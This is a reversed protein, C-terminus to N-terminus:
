LKSENLAENLFALFAQTDLYYNPYARKIEKIQSVYVQVVQFRPDGFHKKETELYHEAVHELHSKLFGTVSIKREKMDLVLVYAQWGPNRKLSSLSQVSHSLGELKGVVDLKMCLKRLEKLLADRDSPCDPVPTSGEKLAILCSTLVFFRRWDKEGGGGKINQQLLSDITEVATAWAHQLRTRLQVEIKRGAHEEHRDDSPMYQMVLHISRYGDPKPLAIYDKVVNGMRLALKQVSKIDSLVARCGGIDQITTLAMNPNRQLKYIISPVRKLRQSVLAKPDIRKSRERLNM